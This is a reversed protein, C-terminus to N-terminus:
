YIFFSISSSPDRTRLVPKLRCGMYSQWIVSGLAPSLLTVGLSIWATLQGFPTPLFHTLLRWQPSTKYPYSQLSNQTSPNVRVRKIQDLFAVSILLESNEWDFAVDVVPLMLNFIWVWFSTGSIEDGMHQLLPIWDIWPHVHCVSKGEHPLLQNALSLFRQKNQAKNWLHNSFALQSLVYRTRNALFVEPFISGLMEQSIEEHSKPKALHQTNQKRYYIWYKEIHKLTYIALLGTLCIGMQNDLKRKKFLSFSIAKPKLFIMSSLQHSWELDSRAVNVWTAIGSLWKM